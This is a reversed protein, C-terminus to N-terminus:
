RKNNNEFFDFDISLAAAILVAKQNLSWDDADFMVRFKDADTLWERQLGTWKKAIEGRQRGTDDQITFTWVNLLPRVVAAFTQGHEDQLEYKARM